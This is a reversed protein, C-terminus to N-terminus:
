GTGNCRAEHHGSCRVSTSGKHLVSWHGRDTHFRFALKPQRQLLLPLAGDLAKTALEVQGGFIQTHASAFARSITLRAEQIDSGPQLSAQGAVGPSSHSGFHQLTRYYGRRALHSAIAENVMQRRHMTLKSLKTEEDNKADHNDNSRDTETRIPHLSSTPQTLCISFQRKITGQIYDAIPFKLDKTTGQNLTDMTVWRIGLTTEPYSKQMGVVPYLATQRQISNKAGTAAVERHKVHMNRVAVGHNEGDITFSMSNSFFDVICGVVTGKTCGLKVGYADSMRGGCAIRRQGAFFGYSHRAEGPLSDPPLSGNSLGVCLGINETGEEIVVEFYLVGVAPDIPAATLLSLPSPRRPIADEKGEHSEAPISISCQHDTAVITTPVPHSSPAVFEM